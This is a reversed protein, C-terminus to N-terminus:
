RQCLDIYRVFDATRGEREFGAAAVKSDFGYKWCYVSLAEPRRPLWCAFSSELVLVYLWLGILWANTVVIAIHASSCSSCRAGRDSKLITIAFLLRDLLLDMAVGDAVRVIECDELLLLVLTLFAARCSPVVQVLCRSPMTFKDGACM